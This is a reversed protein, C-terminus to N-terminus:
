FLEPGDAPQYLDIREIQARVELVHKYAKMIEHQQHLMTLPSTPTFDLTKAEARILLRELALTRVTLQRYEAIFREKYDNSTM